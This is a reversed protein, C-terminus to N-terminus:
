GILCGADAGTIIGCDVLGSRAHLRNQLLRWAFISIKLPVQKHWILAVAHAVHPTDQSTLLQYACGFDAYAWPPTYGRQFLLVFSPGSWQHCVIM